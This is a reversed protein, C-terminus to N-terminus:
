NMNRILGNIYDERNGYDGGEIFHTGKKSLGGRANSLKFPWLFKNAQKFHPGVTVIEHILDEVCIIGHKGLRGEIISNNTIPLRNRKIKAFGRKYVLERVTKLNPYGYAVYHEVRRLMNITAKNLKVFVVNNIQRLRLLQLIKKVKPEVQNIGRIRVVLALKAEPEVFFYGANRATRRSRILENEKSRYERVYQEARKFIVRRKSQLTKRLAARQRVKRARLKEAHNRKKLLTEPVPPVAAKEGKAPAAATTKGKDAM